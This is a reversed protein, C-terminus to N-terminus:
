KQLITFGIEENQRIENKYFAQPLVSMSVPVELIQEFPFSDVGPQKYIILSYDAPKTSRPIRFPLSYMVKVNKVAEPPVVLLFGFITKDDKIAQEIELQQPAVYGQREYITFDMNAPITDVRKGGISVEQIRVGKPLILQIYNEYEGARLDGKQSSNKFSITATSSLVGDEDIMLRRSVSRTILSNVKNKGLNAESIGFYDNIQSVKRTDNVSGSLGNASFINQADQDKLAFLLHKEIISQGIREAVSIYKIKEGRSLKEELSKAIRSLMNGESSSDAAEGQLIESVNEASIEQGSGSIRIPGTASLLNVVFEKNMGIVGDVDNKTALKYISAASIGSVIFDPDFNSDRLSLRTVPIHRRLAYPPEVHTKVLQDIENSSKIEFKTIKGNKIGLIGISDIVGGGPRLEMNDQFLVLYIKERDFGMVGPLVESSNSFSEIIPLANEFKEDLEGPIQGQAKAKQIISYASKFSSMSEYFDKKSDLSKGQYVNKLNESASMLGYTAMSLEEGTKIRNNLDKVDEQKGILRAQAELLSGTKQAIQFFTQANSAREMAGEFDGEEALVRAGSIQRAGLFAYVSTTILPLLFLFLSALLLLAIPRFIKIREWRKKKQKKNENIKGGELSLESIKKKLDYRALAYQSGKPLYLAQEERDRAYDVSIDPDIKQFVHALSIDTIPHQNFLLIIRQPLSIFVAKLILKITDNFTIPYNLSLGEGEVYITKNKRIQSINKSISSNKDFILENDFIDGFVLVKLKSHLSVIEEAHNTDINRISSIFYVDSNTQRAREIFSSISERTIGDGDDVIFIKSYLVNPVKPIKNKIPVIFIKENRKSSLRKTVFVIQFDKSLELALREGIVGTKDFILILSRSSHEITKFASNRM